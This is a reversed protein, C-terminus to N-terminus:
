PRRSDDRRVGLGRCLRFPNRELRAEIAPIAAANEANIKEILRAHAMESKTRRIRKPKQGEIVVRSGPHLAKTM